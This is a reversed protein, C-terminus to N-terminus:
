LILPILFAQLLYLDEKNTSSDLIVYTGKLCRKIAPELLHVVFSKDHRSVLTNVMMLSLSILYQSVLVLPLPTLLMHITLCEDLGNDGPGVPHRYLLMLGSM